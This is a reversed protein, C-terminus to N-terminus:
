YRLWSPPYLLVGPVIKRWDSEAGRPTSTTELALDGQYFRVRCIKRLSEPVLEATFPPSLFVLEKPPAGTRGKRWDALYTEGAKGALVLKEVGSPVREVDRTFALAPMERALCAMRVEKGMCGLHGGELVHGDEVYWVEPRSGNVYAIGSDGHIAPGEARRSARLGFIEVIGLIALAMGAAVLLDRYPIGTRLRVQQGVHWCAVLVPVVWSAPSVMVSNFTAAVAFFVCTALALPNRGSCAVRLSTLLFAVWAFVYVFRLPWGSEVLITLHSNIMGRVKRTRELGQYWNCYAIGSKGRGWGWPAEAIMRPAASWLVMRESNSQDMKFMRRTFRDGVHLAMLTGLLLAVVGFAILIRRLTLFSRYVFGLYVVSGAVVALLGGRSGTAVVCGVVGLVGLWGVIRFPIGRRCTALPLLLFVLSGLFAAAYNPNIFGFKVRGDAHWINQAEIEADTLEERPWLESLSDKLHPIAVDGVLVDRGKELRGELRGKRFMFGREPRGSGGMRMVTATDGVVQGKWGDLGVLARPEDFDRLFRVPEEGEVNLCFMRANVPHFCARPGDAGCAALASLVISFLFARGPFRM